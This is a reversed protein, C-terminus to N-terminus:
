RRMSQQETWAAWSAQTHVHVAPNWVLSDGADLSQSCCHSTHGGTDVTLDCLLTVLCAVTFSGILVFSKDILIAVPISPAELSFKLLLISRLGSRAAADHSNIWQEVFCAVQESCSYKPLWHDPHRHASPSAILCNSSAGRHCLNHFHAFFRHPLSFTQEFGLRCCVSLCVCVYM